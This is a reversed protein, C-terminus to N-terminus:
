DDDDDDAPAAPNPRGGATPPTPGNRLQPPLVVPQSRILPRRLVNGPAAQNAPQGTNAQLPPHFAQGGSVGQPPNRVGGPIPLGPGAPNAGGPSATNAEYRVQAFEKGKSLTITPPDDRNVGWKVSAVAIQTDHEPEATLYLHKQSNQADVVTVMYNVGNQAIMTVTLNDAWGPVPPPPTAAPAAVPVTPPAFPSHGAMKVYKSAPPAKPLVEDAQALGGAALGAALILTRGVWRHILWGSSLHFLM